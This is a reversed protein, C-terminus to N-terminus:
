QKVMKKTEIVKGDVVLTYTYIGNSLDSAFVNVMGKGKEKLDVSQILRGQANYFLMQAKQTNDPLYYSISTQEAFPNPVNQELVISQANTLKIDTKNVYSGNTLTSREEGITCCSNIRETLEATKATLSEIQKQQEQIGKTLVAILEIYNVSKFTFGPHMVNGLSDLEEGKSEAKVLEPMIEEIEQAVFGYQRKNGFNLGYVNTTDYFYTRPKLQNIFESVNAITDINTKFQQDSVTWTGNVSGNGNLYSTGNVYLRYTGPTTTGIGVYGNGTGSPKITIVPENLVGLTLDFGNGTGIALPANNTYIQGLDERNLGFLTGSMSSGGMLSVVSKAAAIDAASFASYSTTGTSIAARVVPTAGLVDLQNAPSTTGIGIKGNVDVKLQASASTSFLLAAAFLFLLSFNNMKTHNTKM